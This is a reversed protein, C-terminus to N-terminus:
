RKDSIGFELWSSQPITLKVIKKSESLKASLAEVKANLSETKSKLDAKLREQENNLTIAQNRLAEMEAVFEPSIGRKAVEDANNKLGSAMVEALSILEAYSVKLKTM